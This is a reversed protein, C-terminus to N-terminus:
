EAARGRQVGAIVAHVGAQGYDWLALFPQAVFGAPLAAWTPLLQIKVDIADVRFGDQIRDRAEPEWIKLNALHTNAAKLNNKASQKPDYAGLTWSNDTVPIHERALQKDFWRGEFSM